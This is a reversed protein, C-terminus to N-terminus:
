LGAAKKLRVAREYARTAKAVEAKLVEDHPSVKLAAQAKLLAIHADEEADYLKEASLEEELAAKKREAPLIVKSLEKAVDGKTGELLEGLKVLFKNGEATESLTLTFTVPMYARKKAADRKVDSTYAELSAESIQKWPMLNSYFRPFGNPGGIALTERQVRGLDINGLAITEGEATATPATIALTAVYARDSTKRKGIFDRVSFHRTDLYMATFDETPRVAIEIVILIDADKPIVNAAELRQLALDNRGAPKGVADEFTGYLGILCGLDPNMELKQQEDTKYLTAFRSASVQETEDAGAKKLLTAVGGIGAEVIKPVFIAALPGFVARTSARQPEDPQPLPNVICVERLLLRFEPKSDTKAVAWVHLPSFLCILSAIAFAQRMTSGKLLNYM